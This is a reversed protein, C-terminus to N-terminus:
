NATKQPIFVTQGARLDRPDSIRNANQIDKITSNNKSAIVSLTDGQKVTYSVGQKPYDDSFNIAKESNSANSNMTKALQDIADQTKKFFDTMQKSFQNMADKQSKQAHLSLQDMKLNTTNQDHNIKDYMNNLDSLAKRLQANERAMLEVDMRLRGIEKNLFSVDQSLNAVRLSIPENDASFVTTEFLFLILCIYITSKLFKKM